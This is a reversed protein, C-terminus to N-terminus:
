NEGTITWLLEDQYFIRVLVVNEAMMAMQGFEEAVTPDSFKFSEIAGGAYCLHVSYDFKEDEDEEDQGQLIRTILENARTMNQKPLLELLALNCTISAALEEVNKM